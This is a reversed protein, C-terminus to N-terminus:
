AAGRSQVIAKVTKTLLLVDGLPSWNEVYDLDLAVTQDWTLSARGGVQWPGTLGPNVKLRRKADSEYEAVESPLPPRPGVLSM